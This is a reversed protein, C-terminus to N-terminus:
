KNSDQEAGTRSCTVTTHLLESQQWQHWTEPPPWQLLKSPQGPESFGISNQLIMLIPFANWLWSNTLTLKEDPPICHTKLAYWDTIIDSISQPWFNQVEESWCSICPYLVESFCVFLFSGFWTHSYNSQGWLLYASQNCKTPVMNVFHLRGSSKWM